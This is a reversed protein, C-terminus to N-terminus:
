KLNKIHLRRAKCNAGRYHNNVILNCDGCCYKANPRKVIKNCGKRQCHKKKLKTKPM